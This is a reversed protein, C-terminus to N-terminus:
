SEIHIVTEELARRKAHLSAPRAEPAPHGIPFVAIPELNDALAFASRLAAPDFHGVWTSGLGLNHVALMIHAGVIASDIIYANDGDYPRVWAEEACGCVVLAMPAGFTYPTCTALKEMAAAGRLVLIRFPQKNVATPSVRATELITQIMEDAVPRDSFKRVSYRERVLEGYEM